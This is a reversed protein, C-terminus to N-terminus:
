KGITITTMWRWCVLCFLTLTHDCCQVLRVKGITGSLILFTTRESAKTAADSRAGKAITDIRSCCHTTSSNSTLAFRVQGVVFRIAMKFRTRASFYRSMMVKLAATEFDMPIRSLAVLDAAAAAAPVASTQVKM